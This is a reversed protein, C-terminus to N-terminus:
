GEQVSPLSEESFSKEQYMGAAAGWVATHFCSLVEM